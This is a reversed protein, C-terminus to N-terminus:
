PVVFFIGDSSLNFPNILPGPTELDKSFGWVVAQYQSGPVLSLSSLTASRMDGAVVMEENITGTFPVPNVRVWFSKATSPAIWAITVQGPSAQLDTIEPPSLYNNADINFTEEVIKTGVTARARYQGDVPLVLNWCASRNAAM